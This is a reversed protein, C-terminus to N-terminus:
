EWVRVVRTREAEVLFADIHERTPNVRALRRRGEDEVAKELEDQAWLVWASSNESALEDELEYGQEVRVADSTSVVAGILEADVEIPDIQVGIWSKMRGDIRGLTEEDIM